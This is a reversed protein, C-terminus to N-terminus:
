VTVKVMSPGNPLVVSVLGSYIETSGTPVSGWASKLAEGRLPMTGKVTPNVSVDVPSKSVQSQVNPSPPVLM